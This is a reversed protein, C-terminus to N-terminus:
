FSASTPEVGVERVGIAMLPVQCVRRARFGSSGPELGPHGAKGGRVAQPGAGTLRSIRTPVPHRSWTSTASHCVRMTSPWTIRSSRSPGVGEPRM